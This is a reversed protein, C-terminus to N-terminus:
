LNERIAALVSRTADAPSDAGFIAGIVAVGAAGSGRLERIREATIGGLAFVPLKTASCGQALGSAECPTGYGTKSLPAYVPGYVAFDAGEREARDLDSVRHASVGILREPGLLRRAEAPSFSEGRLHVGDAECALAVDVRDNITLLAGFGSCVARVERGLAYLERGTLDKERLQVAVGMDPAAERAAALAEALAEALDRGRVLKRDTILYLSFFGARAMAM